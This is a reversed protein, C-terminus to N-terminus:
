STIICCILIYLLAFNLPGLTSWTETFTATAAALVCGRGRLSCKCKCKPGNDSEQLLFRCIEEAPIVPLQALFGICLLSLGVPVM